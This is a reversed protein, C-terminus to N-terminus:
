IRALQRSHPKRGRGERSWKPEGRQYRGLPLSIPHQVSLDRALFLSGSLLTLTLTSDTLRISLQGNRRVGRCDTSRATWVVSRINAEVELHSENTFVAEEGEERKAWQAMSMDEGWTARGGVFSWLGWQLSTTTFSTSTERKKQKVM